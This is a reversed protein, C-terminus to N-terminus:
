AQAAKNRILFYQMVANYIGEKLLRDRNSQLFRAIADPTAAIAVMWRVVASDWRPLGGICAEIDDIPIRGSCIYLRNMLPAMYLRAAERYTNNDIVDRGPITAIYEFVPKLDQAWTLRDIYSMHSLDRLIETHFNRHAHRCKNDVFTKAVSLKGERLAQSLVEVPTAKGSAVIYAVLNNDERLIAGTLVESTMNWRPFRTKACQFMEVTCISRAVPDGHMLEVKPFESVQAIDNALFAKRLQCRLDWNPRYEAEIVERVCARKLDDDPMTRAIHARAIRLQSPAIKEVLEMVRKSNHTLSIKILAPSHLKIDVNCKQLIDVNDVKAAKLAFHELSVYPRVFQPIRVYMRQMGPYDGAKAAWGTAKVPNKLRPIIARFTKCTERLMLRELKGCMSFVHRLIDPIIGTITDPAFSKELIRIKKVPLCEETDHPRKNAQM